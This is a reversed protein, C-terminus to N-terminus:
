RNLLFSIYPKRVLDTAGSYGIAFATLVRQNATTSASTYTALATSTPLAGAPRISWAQTTSQVAVTFYNTIAKYAVNAAVVTSGYYLDVAPVNPMLHIFKLRAFGSDPKTFDDAALIGQTASGTDTIHATYNKGAELMFSGNYLVISDSNSGKKPISVTLKTEGPATTLYDPFANGQTNYGGGPFPTRTNLLGSVRQGNVLVQVQPNAAYGSEYNIKLLSQEATVTTTDGYSIENKECSALMLSCGGILVTYFFLKKM